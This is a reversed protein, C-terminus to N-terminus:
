SGKVQAMVDEVFNDTKKEIGEGVAFRIFKEVNAKADTLIKGVTIDPNKVFPQGVLSIEDLYKKIRGSIMKEIIDAPKGSTAAQASFIEKEKMIIDQSVEDPRVVLPNSAVIQMAMDKQLEDNGGQVAVLAGIRTSHVYSMVSHTSELTALRRIQINEGVKAILTQREEEVTYGSPLKVDNLADVNKISHNIAEEAVHQAFTLFNSDRAVFDTESNIELMIGLKGDKSIRAIVVGESAIRDAKKAAKTKGHKRLIESAKDLDGQAEMLAKKCDMMGADTMDRLKKVLPADITVTM